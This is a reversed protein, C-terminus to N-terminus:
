GTTVPLSEWGRVTSTRAQKANDWDVDWTPFRTLVEDLAVRGELRALAAGLCFHIGYGFSLHHDIHRHIDFLDGDSFKAEDRNASANLLLIASGAPVTEGHHEVERTVTRAQVPSPPEYRLLEEIANPILSRDEVLEKRQDPNEALVKGTWGILRTTTENGAGAILMLYGLIEERSLCRRTGTEDEFEANLLDTMLDDSPHEARWDIYEAFQAAGSEDTGATSRPPADATEMRLGADIRDRIAEQDEEPIGLLYGITRMPMQAGLDAIFDFRGTGVHPDLTRACFERVKPEIAAMRRPTFVRSLLGRHMTHQPPDEFIFIGPPMQVNAKIIELVSGKASSYTKADVLAPEVDAFRSLAFFDHKENYYLPAEERLRKWVPYPDADIEFDYPDYYLDTM